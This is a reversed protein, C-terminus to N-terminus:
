PAPEELPAIFVWEKWADSGRISQVYEGDVQTLEHEMSEREDAGQPPEKEPDTLYNRVWEKAADLTDHLCAPAGGDNNVVLTVFRM